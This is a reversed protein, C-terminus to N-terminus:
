KELNVSIEQSIHETPVQIDQVVVFGIGLIVALVVAYFIVKSNNTTSYTKRM